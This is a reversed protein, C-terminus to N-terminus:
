TRNGEEWLNEAERVFYGLPGRRAYDYIGEETKSRAMEGIIWKKGKCSVIEPMDVIWLGGRCRVREGGVLDRDAARRTMHALFRAIFKQRPLQVDRQLNFKAPCRASTVIGM